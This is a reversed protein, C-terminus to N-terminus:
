QGGVAGAPEGHSAGKGDVARCSRRTWRRDVRWLNPQRAQEYLGHAGGSATPARAGAGAVRPPCTTPTGHAYGRSGGFPGSWTSRGRAAVEEAGTSLRATSENATEIHEYQGARKSSPKAGRRPMQVEQDRHLQPKGWM